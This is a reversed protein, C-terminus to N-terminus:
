LVFEGKLGPADLRLSVAKGTRPKESTSALWKRVEEALGLRNVIELVELLHIKYSKEDLPFSQQELYAWMVQLYLSKNRVVIQLDYSVGWRENLCDIVEEVGLPLHSAANM